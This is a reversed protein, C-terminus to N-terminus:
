RLFNYSANIAKLYTEVLRSVEAAEGPTIEGTAVAATISAIARAADIESRLAPLELRVSRQRRARLLALLLTDSYRPVMIPQGNDDRVLKGASVLPEPVGDVARRRAEDELRDAAIEEDDQWASAFAPDAKRLEYVRTRSTGAIAVATTVSGTDALAELFRERQAPTLKLKRM